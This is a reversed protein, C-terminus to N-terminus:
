KNKAAKKLLEWGKLLDLARMLQYDQKVQDDTLPKSPLHFDDVPPKKLDDPQPAPAPPHPQPAAPNVTKEPQEPGLPKKAGDTIHNDLDKERFPASEPKTKGNLLLNEVVIDPIIGKAQISRGKPTYYKATTLLLGANDPLGMISQVSGKGFSTTGMIVARGHDQLAGAIIESASASGGNILVVMPYPPEKEGVSANFDHRSSEDRGRTYVILANDPRDGVFHNAVSVAQDLLGGPNNRLDLILGQLTGGNEKKLTELAAALDVGTRSQFQMIRLYGYGPELTRFRLSKVLIIDRVLPFVLPKDTGKRLITLTVKTDKPGRMRKVADNITLDRTPVGDILAIHDGPKIGARFAPTDEIPSIVTLRGDKITIEIGLGGFSGTTSVQMEKFSDAPMYVSHPDLSALMGNIAGKVLKKDDVPEVYSKKVIGIVQKLLALYEQDSRTRDSSSRKYLQLTVVAAALLVISSIFIVKISKGSM